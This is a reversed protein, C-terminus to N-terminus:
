MRRVCVYKRGKQPGSKRVVSMEPKEKTVAERKQLWARRSIVSKRLAERSGDRSMITDKDSSVSM